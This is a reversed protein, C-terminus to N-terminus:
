DDFQGEVWSVKIVASALGSVNNDSTSFVLGGESDTFVKVYVVGRKPEKYESILHYNFPHKCKGSHEFKIGDQNLFFDLKLNYYVIENKNGRIDVYTKGVELKLESMIIVGKSGDTRNYVIPIYKIIRRGLAKKWEPWHEDYIM